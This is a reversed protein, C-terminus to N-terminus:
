LTIVYRESYVNKESNEQTLRHLIGIAHLLIGLQPEASGAFFFRGGRPPVADNM